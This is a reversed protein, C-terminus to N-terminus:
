SPFLRSINLVRRYNRNTKLLLLIMTLDVFILKIFPTDIEMKM